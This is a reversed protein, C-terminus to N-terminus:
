SKIGFAALLQDLQSYDIMLGDVDGLTCFSDVEVGNEALWAVAMDSISNFEHRYSITKSKKWHPLTMKVRSGKANSPGFYKCIVAIKRDTTKM